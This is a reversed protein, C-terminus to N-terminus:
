AAGDDANRESWRSEIWARVEVPDYLRRGGPRIQHSPLGEGLYRHLTTKSRIHLLEMVQDVDLYDPRSEMSTMRIVHM